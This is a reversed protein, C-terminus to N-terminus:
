LGQLPSIGREPVRAVLTWCEFGLFGFLDVCQGPLGCDDDLNIGGSGVGAPGAACLARDIGYGRSAEGAFESWRGDEDNSGTDSEVAGYGLRFDPLDECCESGLLLAPDSVQATLENETTGTEFDIVSLDLRGTKVPYVHWSCAIESSCTTSVAHSCLASATTDRPIEVYESSGCREVSASPTASNCSCPRPKAGPRLNPWRNM